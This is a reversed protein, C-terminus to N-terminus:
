IKKKILKIIGTNKRRWFDYSESTQNFKGSNLHDVKNKFQSAWFSCVVDGLAGGM